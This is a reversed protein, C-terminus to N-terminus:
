KREETKEHVKLEDAHKRISTTHDKKIATVLATLFGENRKKNLGGSGRKRLFNKKQLLDQKQKTYPVCLFKLKTEANLLDGIRQRKKKQKGM